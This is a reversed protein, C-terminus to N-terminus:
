KGSLTVKRFDSTQDLYYLTGSYHATVKKNDATTGEFDITYVNGEKNIKLTGSTIKHVSKYEDTKTDYGITIDGDDFTNAAGSETADYTYTGPVLETASSSFVEFYIYDGAGSPGTTESFKINNLLTIDFNYSSMGLPGYYELLGASLAKTEGNYTYYNKPSEDDDSCGILLVSLVLVSLM